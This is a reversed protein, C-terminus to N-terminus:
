LRPTPPKIPSQFSNAGRTNLKRKFVKDSACAYLENFEAGGLVVNALWKNHPKSIIGNVRGPHDCFQVGLATAVFLTGNTALCMGDAASMELADPQHLHHYAQKNTLTGDPRVMYSWVFQGKMDAVLLFAQDPTLRVGNPFQLGGRENSDVVRKDGQATILWVRRNDPDTAYINGNNAVCLDNLGVRLGETFEAFETRKGNEDYALVKNRSAAYLKGDPGFMLGNAGGTNEAFVSVKGDLAIKHILGKPIDTFFVEGRANVAPGETFGHGESVLEWEGDLMSVVPQKSKKEANAVIPKPFDRWLWRLAEPFVQTSQKSDHAGEGWAHKVDYGAFVLAREMMQNAMWWDGGYINLDNEGDQLFVRIPKPETKRILTPYVDGGRLGVYTGISSFVRSFRDPREWAATFAAIAGSSAGGISGDVANTSLTIGHKQEVFPFVENILLRAYADGVGDYEFSRNFRHQAVGANTVRVVGPTVFIGVLPPIEKKHILNDFVTAAQYGGGDQLVMFPAPKTRDLQQPIYVTVDRTTGPFVKSEAYTAKAITGKPAGQQPKSDDTLPYDNAAITSFCIVVLGLAALLSKM